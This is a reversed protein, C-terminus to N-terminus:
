KGYRETGKGALFAVVLKHSVINNISDFYRISGNVNEAEFIERVLESIDNKELVPDGFFSATENMILLTRKMDSGSITGARSIDTIGFAFTLKDSLNGSILTSVAMMYTRYDLENDGNKDLLTFIRDLIEADSAQIAEAASLCRDFDARSIISTGTADGVRKMSLQLAAMNDKEIGCVISIASIGLKSQEAGM